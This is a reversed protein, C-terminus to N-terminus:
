NMSSTKGVLSCITDITEFNEPILDDSAIKLLFVDELYALLKMIGMSDIIGSDLLLTTNDLEMSEDNGIIERCIFNKIQNALKEM